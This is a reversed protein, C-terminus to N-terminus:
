FELNIDCTLDNFSDFISEIAQEISEFHTGHKNYLRLLNYVDKLVNYMKHAQLSLNYYYKDEEDQMDFINIKIM